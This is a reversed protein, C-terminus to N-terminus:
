VDENVTLVKQVGGHPHGCKDCMYDRETGTLKGTKPDNSAGAKGTPLM